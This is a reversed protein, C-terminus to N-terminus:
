MCVNAWEGDFCARVCLFEGWEGSKRATIGPSLGAFVESYAGYVPPWLLLWDLVTRFWWGGHRYLETRLNGPNLPVSIVEKDKWRKAAEVGHLWNGAKSLGYRELPSMAPWYDLYDLSIGKSKEGVAEAGMSSVWVVRVSDQPTTKEAATSFLIPTLLQTLLFPALINVGLHIEWNQATKVSGDNNTAQVGANNFLVDLRTEKALFTQVTPKITTLDNLDLHLFVLEGKSSPYQSKIDAIAAQPKSESRCALYVKANKSFLLRATEKGVGTNSGTVIYVRGSLDPIHEETFTPKPPYINTWWTGVSLSPPKPPRSAPTKKAM